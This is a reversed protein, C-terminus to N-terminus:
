DPMVMESKATAVVRGARLVEVRGAYRGAPWRDTKLKRGAFGVYTAKSRDIPAMAHQQGWGAPGDLVFRLQDGERMNMVRAFFVLGASVPSAVQEPALGIELEAPSVPGGAFGTDLIRSENSAIATLLEPAWLAGEVAKVPDLACATSDAVGTFPDVVKGSHRVEFHVHPYETLGSLGVEGLPTGAEIRDGSRVKLSGKRMHAYITQWGEGHDIIVVNGLGIPNVRAVDAETMVMKDDIGERTKAVVGAAAAKVVVGRAAALNVLRFDTGTHADDSAHGCLYDRIEPGPAVDVFKQVFCSKGPDCDIPLALKPMEASAPDGLLVLLSLKIIAKGIRSM